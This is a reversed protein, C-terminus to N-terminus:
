KSHSSSLTFPRRRGLTVSLVVAASREITLIFVNNPWQEVGLGRGEREVGRDRNNATDDTYRAWTHLSMEGVREAKNASRRDRHCLSSRINRADGRMTSFIIPSAHTGAENVAPDVIAAPHHLSPVPNADPCSHAILVVSLFFPAFQHLHARFVIRSRTREVADCTFDYRPPAM